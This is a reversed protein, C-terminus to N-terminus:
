GGVFFWSLAKHVKATDLQYILSVLFWREALGEQGFATSAVGGIPADTNYRSTARRNSAVKLAADLTLDKFKIGCGLTWGTLVRQAGTQGDVIPQPERFFGVRVPIVVRSGVWALVETGLHLDETDRVRTAKQFDFWNVGDLTTGSDRFRAKSWPTRSWDAMALWRPGLHLGLGVGLTEPWDINAGTAQGAQHSLNGSTSDVTTTTDTFVYRATFPTRYVVGANLWQSRWIVGLTADVGRFSSAQRLDSDFIQNIGSTTRQSYSTFESAGQWANVSVGVLIRATLEAGLGMSYLNVGGSQRVQQNIGQTTLGGNAEALYDVASSYSFDFIRQYSMLFVVNRGDVKWPVALSAFSLAAGRDKNTTDEFTTPSGSVQGTFGQFTLSRAYGQAVVSAEPRLLQALGAPNYSIATADDAIAIFAGGTGTARAGAGQVTFATRAQQTLLFFRGPDPTAQAGLPVLAGALFFCTSPFRSPM